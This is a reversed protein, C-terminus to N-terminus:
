VKIGALLELLSPLKSLVVTKLFVTDLLLLMFLIFYCRFYKLIILFFIRLVPIQSTYIIIRIKTTKVQKLLNHEKIKKGLMNHM